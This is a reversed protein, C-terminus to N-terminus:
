GGSNVTLQYTFQISDGNAVNIATFVTRDMLVGLANADFLGHETIALSSTYSITGQNQYINPAAESPTGATRTAVETVLATNSAAEATTGTGSAHYDYGSIGTGTGVLEDVVDQVFVDTVVRRGLVGYDVVSGDERLVRARLEATITPIGTLLTLGRALLNAIFGWIFGWRLANRLRWALPAQPARIVRTRLTNSFGINQNLM